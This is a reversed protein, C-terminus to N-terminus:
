YFRKKDTQRNTENTKFKRKQEYKRYKGIFVNKAQKNTQKM